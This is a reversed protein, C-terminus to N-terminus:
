CYYPSFSRQSAAPFVHLYTRTPRATLNPLPSGPRLTTAAAPQRGGAAAPPRPPQRLAPQRLPRVARHGDPVLQQVARGGTTYHVCVHAALKRKM